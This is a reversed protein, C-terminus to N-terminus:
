RAERGHWRVSSMPCRTDAGLQQVIHQWVACSRRAVDRVHVFLYLISYGFLAKAERGGSACALRICAAACRYRAATLGYLAGATGILWPAIGLPILVLSYIRIQRVTEQTGAVVPLM